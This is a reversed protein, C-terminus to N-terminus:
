INLMMDANQSRSDNMLMSVALGSYVYILEGEKVLLTWRDRFVMKM